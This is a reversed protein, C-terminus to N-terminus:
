LCDPSSNKAALSLGHAWADISIQRAAFAFIPLSRSVAFSVSSASATSRRGLCYMGLDAILTAALGALSGIEGILVPNRRALAAATMLTPVVPLPLGSRALLINLFVVSLVHRSLFGILYQM